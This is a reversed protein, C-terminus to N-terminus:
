ELKIVCPEAVVAIGVPASSDLVVVHFWVPLGKLAPGLLNFNLGVVGSGQSDLSGVRNQVLFDLYGNLSAIAIDDLVLNLIRGDGLPIGPRIGSINVASVYSKGAMGPFNLLVRRNNPPMILVPQVERSGEIELSRMMPVGSGGPWSTLVKVNGNTDILSIGNNKTTTGFVCNGNYFRNMSADVRRDFRLGYNGHFNQPGVLLKATGSVLDLEYATDTCCTGAYAKGTLTDQEINLRAISTSATVPTTIAHSIRDVRFLTSGVFCLYDGTDIDVNATGYSNSTPVTAVTTLFGTGPDVEYITGSTDYVVLKGNQDLHMSNAYKLLPPSTDTFVTSLIAGTPDLMLIAAYSNWRHTLAYIDRNNEAMIVEWVYQSSASIGAVMTTLKYNRDVRFVLDSQNYAAGGMIFDGTFPQAGVAATMAVAAILMMKLIHM